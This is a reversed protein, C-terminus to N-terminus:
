AQYQTAAAALKESNLFHFSATSPNSPTMTKKLGARLNAARHIIYNDMTESHVATARYDGTPHSFTLSTCRIDIWVDFYYCFFPQFEM